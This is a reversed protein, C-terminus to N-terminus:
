FFVLTHLFPHGDRISLPLLLTLLIISFLAAKLINYEPSSRLIRTPLGVNLENNM